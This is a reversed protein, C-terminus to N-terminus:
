YQPCFIDGNVNDHVNMNTVWSVIQAVSHPNDACVIGKLNFAIEVDENGTVLSADGLYIGYGANNQIVSGARSEVTSGGVAFVGHGTNNEVLTGHTISLHGGSKIDIGGINHSIRSSGVRGASGAWISIGSKNYEITCDNFDLTSGDFSMVGSAANYDITSSYIVAVSGSRVAIGHGGSKSVKCSKLNLYSGDEVKICESHDEIISNELLGTSSERLHIGLFASDKIQLNEASFSASRTALLGVSGGTFTLQKLQVKQAGQIRLLVQFNDSNPAQIGDGESAGQLTINDRNITVLETCVGIVTIHFPNLTDEAQGLADGITQGAGCDIFINQPQLKAEVESVKEELATLRTDLDGSAGAAQIEVVTENAGCEDGEQM